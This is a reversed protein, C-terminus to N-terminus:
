PRAPSRPVLQAVSAAEVNSAPTHRRRSRVGALRQLHLLAIGGIKSNPTASSMEIM